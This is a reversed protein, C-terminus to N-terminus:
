NEKYQTFLNYEDTQNPINHKNQGELLYIYKNFLKKYKDTKYLIQLHEVNVHSYQKLYNNINLQYFNPNSFGNKQAFFYSVYNIVFYVFLKYTDTNELKFLYMYKLMVFCIMFYETNTYYFFTNKM